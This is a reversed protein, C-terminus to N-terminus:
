QVPTLLFLLLPGEPTTRGFATIQGRNNIDFASILSVTGVLPDASDIQQTLDVAVGNQWLTARNESFNGCRGVVDGADNIDSADCGATGGFLSPLMTRQGDQWVYAGVDGAGGFLPFLVGVVQGYDNIADASSFIPEGEETAPPVVEIVQGERWLLAQSSEFEGSGSINVGAVEGRDNIESARLRGAFQPAALLTAEGRKWIFLRSEGNADTTGGVVQRRNNIDNVTVPADALVEVRIPDRGRRLVFAHGVGQADFAVVTVDNDNNIGTAAASQPREDLRAGLDVLRGNRWLFAQSPFDNSTAALVGSDNLEASELLRNPPPDANIRTLRYHTELSAAVSSTAVSCALVAISLNFRTM